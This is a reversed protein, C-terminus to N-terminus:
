RPTLWERVTPSVQGAVLFATSIAIIILVVGLAITATRSYIARDVLNSFRTWGQLIARGVARDTKSWVSSGALWVTLQVTWTFLQVFALGIVLIAWEPGSLEKEIDMHVELNNPSSVAGAASNLSTYVM